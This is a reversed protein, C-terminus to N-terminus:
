MRRSQLNVVKAKLTILQNVAIMSLMSLNLDAPVLETKTFTVDTSQLQDIEVNDSLLIDTSGEKKDHVFKRMKIPSSKEMADEICKRKRPLFCIARVVTKEETQFNFDFYKKSPGNKVPSLNHIYGSISTDKGEM